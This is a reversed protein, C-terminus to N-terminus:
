DKKGRRALLGLGALGALGFTAPEPIVGGGPGVLVPAGASFQTGATGGSFTVGTFSKQANVLRTAGEFWTANGAQPRYQWVLAAPNAGLSGVLFDVEGLYYEFGGPIATPAITGAGGVPQDNAYLSAGSSASTTNGPGSEGGPGASRYLVWGTPSGANADTNGNDIDGDGDLDVLAGGQAGAGSASGAGFNGNINGRTQGAANGSVFRGGASSFVPWGTGGSAPDGVAGAQTVQAYAQMAVVQGPSIATVSLATNPGSLPAFGAFTSDAYTGIARLGIVMSANASTSALGAVAAGSLLMTSIRKSLM